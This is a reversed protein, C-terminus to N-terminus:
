SIDPLNLDLNDTIIGNVSNLKLKTIDTNKKITWIYIEKDYKKSLQIFRKSLLSYHPHWADSGLFVDIWRYMVFLHRFLLGTKLKKDRNKLLKLIIPNFSSFWVQDAMDFKNITKVISNAFVNCSNIGIKAEINIPIKNKFEELIDELKNINATHKYSKSNFELKKLYDFSCNSVKKIIGFNNFLFSDHFVVLEGSGCLRIDIELGTAGRELALQCSKVTNEPAEDRMGRHSILLPKRNSGNTDNKM